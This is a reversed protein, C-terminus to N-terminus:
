ALKRSAVIVRRDSARAQSVTLMSERQINAKLSKSTTRHLSHENLVSCLAFHQSSSDLASRRSLSSSIPRHDSSLGSVKLTRGLMSCSELFRPTCELARCVGRNDRYSPIVLIVPPAVYTTVQSLRIVSTMSMRRLSSLCCNPTGSWM